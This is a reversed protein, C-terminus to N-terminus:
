FYIKPYGLKTINSPIALKTPEVGTRFFVTDVQIVQGTYSNWNLPSVLMLTYGLEKLFRVMDFFSYENKYLPILSLELEIGIIWELSKLAGDIVKKEYGQTDSKLFIRREQFLYKKIVTDITSVSVNQKKTQGANSIIETLVPLEKHLSSCDGTEREASINICDTGDKDGIAINEVDWLVDNFSAKQLQEYVPKGAFLVPEFSVIRKKYGYERLSKAYQGVNAGVDFVLNIDYIELLKHKCLQFDFSKYKKKIEYGSKDLIKKIFSKIMDFHVMSDNLIVGLDGKLRM